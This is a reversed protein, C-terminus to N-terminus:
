KSARTDTDCLFAGVTAATQALEELTEQPNSLRGFVLTQVFQCGTLKRQRKIFGKTRALIDCETTLVTQMASAVQSIIDM